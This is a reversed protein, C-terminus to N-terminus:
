EVFSFVNWQFYQNFTPFKVTMSQDSDPISIAIGMCNLYSLTFIPVCTGDDGSCLDFTVNGSYIQGNALTYPTYINAYVVDRQPSTYFAFNTSTEITLSEPSTMKLVYPCM